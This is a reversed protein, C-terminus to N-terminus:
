HSRSREGESAERLKFATYAGLFGDPDLGHDGQFQKVREAFEDDQIDNVPGDYGALVLLEKAERITLIGERVAQHSSTPLQQPDSALRAIRSGDLGQIIGANVLFLLRKAAESRDPEELARQILASEFKQRELQTNWYGQLAAGVGTGLLGFVASFVGVILPSSFWIGRKELALRGEVERERLAYEKERLALEAKRLELDYQGQLSPLGASATPDLNVIKGAESKISEIQRRVPNGRM